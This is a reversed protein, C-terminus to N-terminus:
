RKKKLYWFLEDLEIVDVPQMTNEASSADAQPLDEAREKIWRFVNSKSMKRLRGVARGSVGEYYTKIADTRAEESYAHKAPEPTYTRRCEQCLYRVTGSRNRGNKNQRKESGCYPCRMENVM